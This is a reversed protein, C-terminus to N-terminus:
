NPGGYAQRALVIESVEVAGAEKLARAVQRITFGETFVDDFVLIRAGDVLEPKRV